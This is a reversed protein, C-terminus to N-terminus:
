QATWGCDITWSAGTVCAGSDSCLYLVLSAVEKPEIIKKIAASKLMIKEVVDEEPINHMKAQDAIQNEVLPTRVYAPCLANVTIGHSGGELAATRTLGILGHKASVYGVKNPSAVLAHRSAINVVRGWKQNKMYPWVYRTLLFPATLMVSLMKDWKEEPFTELPSIHQFGANNVLIDIRGYKEVAADILHRCSNRETLDVKVFYGSIKEAVSLGKEEKVDAVVVSHGEQGLAEAISKGIGSAGGTVIACKKM